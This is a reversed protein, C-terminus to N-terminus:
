MMIVIAPLAFSGTIKIRTGIKTGDRFSVKVKEHTCITMYDVQDYRLNM